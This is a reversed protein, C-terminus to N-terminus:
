ARKGFYKRVLDMAPPPTIKAVFYCASFSVLLGIIIPNMSLFQHPKFFSGNTFIGAVYMGLHAGFGALMGAICGQENARPWFLAFVMPGLFAAALGSGTYVIIDQLFQPPNIAGFAAGAGVLFTFLFSLRKVTKESVDPDINRQYIDRVLASSILLLFSDVTSMVAAFPAAILLGALWPHGAMHTLTVAMQPMIRDSELEMGPLLVRALCFIIVLPFYIASFYFAVTVMSRSLTLSDKFAMLRVMSHPQGAGSIAWMFFFSIAIGFPLFGSSPKQISEDDFKAQHTTGSAPSLELTVNSTERATVTANKEAVSFGDKVVRIKYDGEDVAVFVDEGAAIAKTIVIRKGDSNLVRIEADPESSAIRLTGPNSPLRTPSPGPGKAYVGKEGAGYAYGLALTVRFNVLGLEPTMLATSNRQLATVKSRLAAKTTEDGAAAIQSEVFETMRTNFDAVVDPDMLRQGPDRMQEDIEAPTTIEVAKVHEVVSTKAPIALTKNIRFLRDKGDDGKLSFWPSSFAINDATPNELEVQVLCLNPPTMNAIKKAATDMGGVAWIAIPLMIIVGFVMVVGQMVDTWVVAHFGGYTTYLVVALGFMMLCLLYAPDVDQLASINNTIGAVWSVSADYVWVGGLLTDLIESGAKFQAVLNFAMFFVILSVAILGFKASGFRDRLVDPVTIAGSLRAVQNIRKGLLGMACIPVVVYSGIWLGLIWGHTYIKSPFGTFSGGSASTAAFTLALAWVGLSRSGLFYESLFNKGAMLRNSLAALGFVALTYGLFVVLAANSGGSAALTASSM